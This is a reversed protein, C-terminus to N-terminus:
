FGLGSSGFFPFRTIETRQNKPEKPRIAEFKEEPMVMSTIRLGFKEGVKVTDGVAVECNGVSLTLPEDCPKTFHLITGPALDLVRSVPQRTSALTVVVPVKIRLLSRSYPPLQALRHALENEDGDGLRVAGTGPPSQLSDIGAM